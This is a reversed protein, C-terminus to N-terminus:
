IKKIKGPTPEYCIGEGLLENIIAELQEQSAKVKEAIKNYEMGDKAQEIVALIERRLEDSEKEKKVEEVEKGKGAKLRKIKDILELRRLLEWNPDDLKRIIEPVLYIEDDYERVRGIVDVLWGVEMGLIPKLDKWVKARVCATSDDLTISAFNGDDSVFKNVCTALIRARRIEEKYPTLVFGAEGERKVWEGRVLDIIRLKKATWREVM